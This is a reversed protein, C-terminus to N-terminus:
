TNGKILLICHRPVLEICNLVSHHANCCKSKTESASAKSMPFKLPFTFNWYFKLNVSM